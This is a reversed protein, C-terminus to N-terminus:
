AAGIRLLDHLHIIGVPTKNSGNTVILASINFEDLMAMASTVLMDQPVTKPNTTMLDQVSMEQLNKDLNRALDGDTIIGILKDHEVM